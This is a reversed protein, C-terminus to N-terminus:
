DASKDSKANFALAKELAKKGAALICYFLKRRSGSAEESADVSIRIQKGDMAKVQNLWGQSYKGDAGIGVRDKIDAMTAKADKDTDALASLVALQTTTLGVSEAAKRSVITPRRTRSTKEGEPKVKKTAKAPKTSKAPATKAPKVPKAAVAKKAKKKAATKKAPAAKAETKKAAKKRPKTVRKVVGPDFGFGGTGPDLDVVEQKTEVVPTAATQESM